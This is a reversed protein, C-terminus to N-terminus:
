MNWLSKYDELLKTDIWRRKIQSFKDLVEKETDGEIHLIDQFKPKNNDDNDIHIQVVIYCNNENTRLGYRIHYPYNIPYLANNFFKVYNELNMQKTKVTYVTNTKVTLSKLNNM